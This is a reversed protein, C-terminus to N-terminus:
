KPVKVIMEAVRQLIRAVEVAVLHPFTAAAVVAEIVLLDMAFRTLLVGSLVPVTTLRTTDVLFDFNIRCKVYFM